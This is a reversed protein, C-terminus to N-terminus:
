RYHLSVRIEANHEPIQLVVSGSEREISWGGSHQPLNSQDTRALPTGDMEVKVPASGAPPLRIIVSARGPNYTGKWRSLQINLGDGTREASITRELYDGQLCNWTKGDDEYYTHISPAASDPPYLSITLPDIRKEDTHQLVEQAYVVGGARVFLPVRDLPAEVRVTAGGSLRRGTWFDYWTGEPLMVVRARDGEGLVPAVLLDDGFLFEDDTGALRPDGPYAFALPRMPPLGTRSAQVMSNYVQPLLRYRLEILRRNIATFEKGFEWPEKNPADIVSHARMLPTFVGLGLWRAFLEGSPTGIFGGIDSGVFPQGSISLNLCMTLAMRLHEWSAVNDGTWAAAYRQGGAYSARTLIFPREGPRLRAVGERTARTMEMGYVNHFEAHSLTRGGARHLAHLDITKTPVDFVSPENMDTWFGRVGASVLPTFQAGWWARAASDAFDPFACEGPWVKGKFPKGDTGTVFVGAALGSRYAHYATDTKIGPDVITVVKFGEASLESILEKPHPFNKPSWTFIRYGDMYDIDLYIVDCPIQLERFTRAISRVRSEPSYSWRCQQYGLAWRPPLPMHGVLETYRILIRAPDPGSFFYYDLDGSETGFAYRDRNEKGMDFSTWSSNDLFIAYARGANIGYFFPISEYLPDTDAGYAPIDSNWMTMSTGRRELKGAKEGFGYYREGPPMVKWVRAERGNWSIGDGPDDANLLRGDRDHFSIRLPHKDVVVRLSDTSLIAQTPTETLETLPEPWSRQVVAWSIDPPFPKLRTAHVRVLDGTLATVRVTADGAFLTLEGPGSRVTSDVSGISLWQAGLRLPLIAILLLASLRQM